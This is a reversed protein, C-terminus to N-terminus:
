NRREGFRGNDRRGSITFVEPLTIAAKRNVHRRVAGHEAKLGAVEIGFEIVPKVPRLRQSFGLALIELPAGGSSLRTRLRLRLRPCCVSSRSLNLFALEPWRWSSWNTIPPCFRWCRAVRSRTTSETRRAPM